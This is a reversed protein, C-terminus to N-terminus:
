VGPHAEGNEDPDADDFVEGGDIVRPSPDACPCTNHSSVPRVTGDRTRWVTFLEGCNRCIGAAKEREDDANTM